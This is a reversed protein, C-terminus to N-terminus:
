LRECNGRTKGGVLDAYPFLRGAYIQKQMNPGLARMGSFMDKRPPSVSQGVRKWRAQSLLTPAHFEPKGQQGYRERSHSISSGLVNLNNIFVGSDNVEAIGSYCTTGLADRYVPFCIQQINRRGVFQSHLIQPVAVTSSLEVLDLVDLCNIEHNHFLLM